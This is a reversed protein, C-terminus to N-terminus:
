TTVAAQDRLLRDLAVAAGVGEVAIPQATVYQVVVSRAAEGALLQAIPGAAPLPGPNLGLSLEHEIEPWVRGAGFRRALETVGAVALSCYRAEPCLLAWGLHRGSDLRHLRFLTATM